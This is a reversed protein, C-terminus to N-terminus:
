NLMALDEIALKNSGCCGVVVINGCSAVVSRRKAVRVLERETLLTVWLWSKGRPESTSFRARRGEPEMMARVYVRMGEIQDTERVGLLAGLRRCVKGWAM